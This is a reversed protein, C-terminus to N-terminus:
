SSLIESVEERGPLVAAIQEGGEESKLVNDASSVPPRPWSIEWSVSSEGDNDLSSM